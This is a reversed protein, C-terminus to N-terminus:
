VKKYNKFLSNKLLLCVGGASLLVIFFTMAFDAHRGLDIVHFVASSICLLALFGHIVRWTQYTMPLKKRILSTVGLILLLSWATLGLVIGRSTFTTVIISFAELPLIGSEFFRPVVLLFPHLLLVPIASYGIIKHLNILKNLKTRKAASKNTRTLYLLGIMLSFALITLVSLSEKLWTRQPFNGAAWILLPMGIFAALIQLQVNNKIYETMKLGMFRSGSDVQGAYHNHCGSSLVNQM